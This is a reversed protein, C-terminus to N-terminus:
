PERATSVGTAGSDPMIGHFTDSSYRSNILFVSSHRAEKFIDTKTILHLASQNNLIAITELGKVEGLETLFYDYLVDQIDIEALL